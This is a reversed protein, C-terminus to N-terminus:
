WDERFGKFRSPIRRIDQILDPTLAPDVATTLAANLADSVGGYRTEIEGVITDHTGAAAFLRAVDDPIEAAMKDWEGRKSMEHLKLGLDEPGHTEWVPFYSRTSGYFAVRYRVWEFMKDVSEEDPGTVVYGGGSIEFNERPLGSEALGAELQPMVREEIYKRTCFPHLRVGDCVRGALRLMAPGVAAITVPIPSLGNLEPVFNPTMLTFQYHKGVYNLPEGKAWCRWIARLSEVYERLRPAPPSWPVSFRRENHGKVQTGLGLVFRGGSATQLDHAAEAVAMPSRAFAIAIATLLEIRDTVTAAVALPLFPEHQNEMTMAGDYGAAELAKAAPGANRLNDQPLVTLLRM